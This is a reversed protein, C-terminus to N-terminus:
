FKKFAIERTFKGGDRTEIEIQIPNEGAVLPIFDTSFQDNSVFVTANFRNTGHVVSLKKVISPSEAKTGKCFKSILRVKSATTETEFHETCPVDVQIFQSQLSAIKRDVKAPETVVVPTFSPAMFILRYASVTFMGFCCLFIVLEIPNLSWKSTPRNQM